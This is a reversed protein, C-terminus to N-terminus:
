RSPKVALTQRSRTVIRTGGLSAGDLSSCSSDRGAERLYSSGGHVQMAAPQDVWAESVFLKAM